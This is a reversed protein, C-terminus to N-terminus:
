SFMWRANRQGEEDASGGIHGECIRKRFLFSRKWSRMAKDGMLLYKGTRPSGQKQRTGGRVVNRSLIIIAWWFVYARPALIETPPELAYQPFIPLALAHAVDLAHDM